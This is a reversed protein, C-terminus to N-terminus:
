FPRQVVYLILDCDSEKVGWGKIDWYDNLAEIVPWCSADFELETDCGEFHVQVLVGQKNENMKMFDLIKMM